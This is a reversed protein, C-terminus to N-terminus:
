ILLAVSCAEGDDFPAYRGQLPFDEKSSLISMLLLDTRIEIAEASRAM